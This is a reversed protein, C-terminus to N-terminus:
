KKIRRELRALKIKRWRKLSKPFNFAEKLQEMMIEVDVIEEALNHRVGKFAKSCAMSLEACEEMTQVLQAKKGFKELAKAYLSIAM